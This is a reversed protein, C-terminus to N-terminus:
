IHLCFCLHIGNDNCESVALLGVQSGSPLASLPNPGLLFPFKPCLCLHNWIDSLSAPMVTRLPLPVHQPLPLYEWAIILCWCWIKIEQNPTPELSCPLSALSAVCDRLPISPLRDGNQFEPEKKDAHMSYWNTNLSTEGVAQNVAFWGALAAPKGAM